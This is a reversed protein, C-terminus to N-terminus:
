YSPFPTVVSIGGFFGAPITGNLEQQTQHFSFNVDVKNYTLTGGFGSVGNGNVVPGMSVSDSSLISMPLPVALSIGNVPPLTSGYFLPVLGNIGPSLFTKGKFSIDVTADNKIPSINIIPEKSDRLKKYLQLRIDSDKPLVPPELRLLKGLYERQEKKLGLSDRNALMTLAEAIGTETKELIVPSIQGKIKMERLDSLTEYVEKYNPPIRETAAIVSGALYIANKDNKVKEALEASDDRAVISRVGDTISSNTDVAVIEDELHIIKISVAATGKDRLYSVQQGFTSVMAAHFEEEAKAAGEGTNSGTYQQQLAQYEKATLSGDDIAKALESEKNGEFAYARFDKRIASLYDSM